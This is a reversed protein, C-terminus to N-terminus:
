PIAFHGVILEHDSLPEGESDVAPVIEAGDLSLGRAAFWDLKMTRTPHPTLYSRRTTMGEANNDWSYGRARALDFLEERSWDPQDADNGTNLDGGIIVPMDPAFSEVAELLAEMQGARRASGANSELHTSVVCVKGAATPLIAAIAMRGGIRPQTADVSLDSSAFWHGADDLRILAVRHPAARSLVANGHWGAENHDDICYPRETEGGLGLEFFEVGYAYHMALAGAIEAAPHRQATRAMGCDLESLLIVDPNHRGLLGASKEPFLGREINWAAITFDPSIRDASGTGGTEVMGMAEISAMHERHAEVTRPGSLISQKLADDVLPLTAVTRTHIAPGSM